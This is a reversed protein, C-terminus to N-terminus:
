DSIWLMLHCNSIQDYSHLSILCEGYKPHLFKKILFINNNKMTEKILNGKIDYLYISNLSISFFYKDNWFCIDKHDEGKLDLLNVLDGTEFNWIEIFKKDLGILFTNGNNQESIIIKRKKFHFNDERAAEYKKLSKNQNYDYAEIYGFRGILIFIKNNNKNYYTEIYYSNNNENELVKVNKGFFDFIKIPESNMFNNEIGNTSIIYINDDKQLFCASYLYGSSYINQFTYLCNWKLIEWIKITNDYKSISMLLDRKKINDFHYRFCTITTKHANKIICINRTKVIDYCIFSKQNKLYILYIFDFISKFICITNNSYEQTDVGNLLIKLQRINEPNTKFNMSDYYKEELIDNNKM